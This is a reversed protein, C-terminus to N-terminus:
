TVDNFTLTCPFINPGGAAKGLSKKKKKKLNDLESVKL